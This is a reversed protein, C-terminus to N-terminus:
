MLFRCSLRLLEWLSSPTTSAAFDIPVANFDRTYLAKSTTLNLHLKRRSLVHASYWMSYWMCLVFVAEAHGQCTIKFLPSAPRPLSEHSPQLGKCAPTPADV